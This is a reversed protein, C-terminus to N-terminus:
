SKSTKPLVEGHELHLTNEPHQKAFVGELKEIPRLRLDLLFRSNYTARLYYTLCARPNGHTYPPYLSFVLTRAHPGSHVYTRGHVTLTSSYVLNFDTTLLEVRRGSSKGTVSDAQTNDVRSSWRMSTDEIRLM